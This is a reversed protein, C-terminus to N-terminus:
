VRNELNTTQATSSSEIRADVRKNRTSTAPLLLSRNEEVYSAMATALAKGFGLVFRTGPPVDPGFEQEILDLRAVGDSLTQNWNTLMQELQEPELYDAFYMAVLYESRLKHEPSADALSTEFVQRGAETIRYVKRDPKKDQPMAHCQVLGQDALVALSPYISGYGAPYFHKFTSEFQKKLDYGSADGDCLLGLCLTKIDM